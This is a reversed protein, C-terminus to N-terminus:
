FHASTFTGVNVFLKLKSYNQRVVTNLLESVELFLKLESWSL